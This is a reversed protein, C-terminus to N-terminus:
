RAFFKYIRLHVIFINGSWIESGFNNITPMIVIKPDDIFEMSNSPEQGELESIRQTIKGDNAWIWKSDSSFVPLSLLAIFIINKIISFKIFYREIFQLVM